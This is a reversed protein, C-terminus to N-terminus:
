LSTSNPEDATHVFTVTGRSHELRQHLIQEALRRVLLKFLDKVFLRFPEQDYALSIAIFAVKNQFQDYYKRVSYRIADVTRQTPVPRYYSESPSVDDPRCIPAPVPNHHRYRVLSITKMSRAARLACYTDAEKRFFLYFVSKGTKTPVRRFKYYKLQQQLLGSLESNPIDGESLNNLVLRCEMRLFFRGRLTLVNAQRPMRMSVRVCAIPLFRLLFERSQQHLYLRLIM